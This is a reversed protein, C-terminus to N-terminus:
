KAIRRHLFKLGSWVEDIAAIKVDVLGTALGEARVDAEGIDTLVGSARKPWILWLAGKPTLRPPQGSSHRDLSRRDPCFALIVDYPDRGPRRHPAFLVSVVLDPAPGLVLCRTVDDV